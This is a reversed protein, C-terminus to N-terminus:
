VMPPRSLRTTSMAPSARKCNRWRVVDRFEARLRYAILPKLLWGLPAALRPFRFQTLIGLFADDALLHALVAPVEADSYPRIADFEGM